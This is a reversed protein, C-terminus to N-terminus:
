KVITKQLQEMRKRKTTHGYGFGYYTWIRKIEYGIFALPTGIMAFQVAMTVWGLAANVQTQGANLGLSVGLMNADVKNIMSIAFYALLMGGLYMFLNRKLATIQNPREMPVLKYSLLASLVILLSANLIILRGMYSYYYVAMILMVFMASYYVAIKLAEWVKAKGTETKYRVADYDKNIAM